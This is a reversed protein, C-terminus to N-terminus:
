IDFTLATLANRAGELKGLWRGLRHEKSTVVYVVLKRDHLEAGAIKVICGRVQVDGINSFSRFTQDIKWLRLEGSFSGTFFLDSYPVAYVATIWFPQRISVQQEAILLATEASAKAPLALASLGHALRQTFLAKKKSLAWLAVNGNDSGTVFHSEDVMAVSDISGEDYFEEETKIVKPADNDKKDGDKKDDDRRRRMAGGRFTLRSEEAIKWFMATKDRSGVSVCTERGLASVDTINDQHGYLIELQAHQNISFTRIRLDACAAYLQDTGRRFCVANVGARTEFVKLCALNEASWIILRADSGGTVVYKGDPSAAVCNIQAWHHGTAKGPAYRPGGKTHKVRQPKKRGSRWKILEMDKSVTYIYTDHVAVGTLNRSGIRTNTAKIEALQLEVKAAIFKYVHGKTEAVDEQLRRALNDNDEDAADFEGEIEQAKLNALYQKALRRRKDAANESAFEEDSDLDKEKEFEADNIEGEDSESSIELDHGRSPTKPKATKSAPRKRKRSPDSLFPDAMTLTNKKRM